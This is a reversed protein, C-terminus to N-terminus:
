STDACAIAGLPARSLPPANNRTPYLIRLRSFGARLRAATQAIHREMDRVLSLIALLRQAFDRGRVAKRLRAGIIVRRTLPKLRGHRHQSRRWCGRVHACAHFVVLHCAFRAIKDLNRRSPREGEAMWVGFAGVAWALWLQLWTVLRTLRHANTLIPRTPRM